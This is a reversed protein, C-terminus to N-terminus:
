KGNQVYNCYWTIMYDTLWFLLLDVYNHVLDRSYVYLVKCDFRFKDANSRGYLFM